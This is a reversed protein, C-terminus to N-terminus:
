QPQRLSLNRLFYLYREYSDEVELRHGKGLLDTGFSRNLSSLSLPSFEIPQPLELYESILDLGKGESLDDYTLLISGPTRKAMECLRRMRFKYYLLAFNSKIKDNSIMFNIPVEPRRIIYIFKCYKYIEESSIQHNYIIQDMYIASRNKVKHNFECLNLLQLCSLYRNLGSYGQIRSHNNMAEYLANSGSYLHSCIFVVKKM